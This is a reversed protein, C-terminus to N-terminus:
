LTQAFWFLSNEFNLSLVSFISFGLKQVRKKSFLCNKSFQSIIPCWFVCFSLQTQLFRRFGIYFNLGFVFKAWIIVRVQGLYYGKLHGFKAGIIVECCIYICVYMYVYVCM